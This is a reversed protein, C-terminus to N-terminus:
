NILYLFYVQFPLSGTRPCYKALPKNRCLGFIFFKVVTISCYLNRSSCAATVVEPSVMVNWVVSYGRPM